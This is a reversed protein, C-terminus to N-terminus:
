THLRNKPLEWPNGPNRKIAAFREADSKLILWRDGFMVAKLRRSKTKTEQERILAYVRRRTVGIIKAAAEPTIYQDLKKM